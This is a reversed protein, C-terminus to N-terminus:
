KKFHFGRWHDNGEVIGFAKFAPFVLVTFLLILWIIANFWNFTIQGDAVMLSKAFLAIAVIGYIMRKILYWFDDGGASVGRLTFPRTTEAMLGIITFAAIIDVGCVIINWVSNHAM